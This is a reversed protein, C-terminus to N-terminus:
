NDKELIDNFYLWDGSNLNQLITDQKFENNLIFIRTNITTPKTTDVKIENETVEIGLKLTNKKDDFKSSIALVRDPLEWYYIYYPGFFDEKKVSAKGHKQELYKLLQKFNEENEYENLAVLAIFNGKLDQLMDIKEFDMKQYNALQDKSSWGRMDFKRGIPNEKSKIYNGPDNYLTDVEIWHFDNLASLEKDMADFDQKLGKNARVQQLLEEKRKTYQQEKDMEKAYYKEVNFNLNFKELNIKDKGLDPNNCGIMLMSFAVLSLM